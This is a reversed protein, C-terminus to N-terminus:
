EWGGQKLGDLYQMHRSCAVLFSGRLDPDRLDYCRRGCAGWSFEVAPFATQGVKAKTLRAYPVGAFIASDFLREFKPGDFSRYVAKFGSGGAVDSEGLIESADFDTRYAGAQRLIGDATEGWASLADAMRGMPGSADSYGEDLGIRGFLERAIGTLEAAMDTAASHLGDDHYTQGDYLLRMAYHTVENIPAIADSIFGMLRRHAMELRCQDSLLMGVPLRGDGPGPSFTLFPVVENYDQVHCEVEVYALGHSAADQLCAKLEQVATAPGFSGAWGYRLETAGRITDSVHFGDTDAM